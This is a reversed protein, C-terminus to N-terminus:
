IYSPKGNKMSTYDHVWFGVEKGLTRAHRRAHTLSFFFYGFSRPDDSYLGFPTVEFGSKRRDTAAAPRIEIKYGSM